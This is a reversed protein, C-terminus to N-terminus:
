LHQSNLEHQIADAIHRWNLEGIPLQESDVVIIRSEGSHELLSKAECVSANHPLCLFQHAMIQHVRKNMLSRDSQREAATDLLPSIWHEILIQTVIGVVKKHEENLVVACGIPEHHNDVLEVLESLTHFEEIILVPDLTLMSIHDVRKKDKALIDLCLDVIEPDFEVGKGRLLVETLKRMGLSPRYPRHSLISDSVDAVAIIKAELCIKDATLGYPYGSGDLREHHQIIMERIPWPFTMGDFVEAGRITHQKILSFEEHTLTSPKNLIQTPISLKGLDHVLAGMKLGELQFASLGLQEGILYSLQSVSKQHGATYADKLEVAESIANLMNAMGQNIQERQHKIIKQQRAVARMTKPFEISHWLITAFILLAKADAENYPLARNAVGVVGVIHGRYIVPVCISNTLIVSPTLVTACPHDNVVDIDKTAICRTWLSSISSSIPLWKHELKLAKAEHTVCAELRIKEAKDNLLYCFGVGSNSLEKAKLAAVHYIDAEKTTMIEQIDSLWEHSSQVANLYNPNNDPLNFKSLDNISANVVWCEVRKTFRLSVLLKVGEIVQSGNVEFQTQDRYQEANDQDFFNFFDSLNANIIESYPSALLTYLNASLKLLTFSESTLAWYPSLEEPLQANSLFQHNAQTNM